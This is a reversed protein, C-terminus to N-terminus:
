SGRSGCRGGRSRSRTAPPNVILSRSRAFDGEASVVSALNGLSSAVRVWDEVQKGLEVAEEYLKIARPANNEQRAINALNNICAAIGSRDDIERYLALADDDDARVLRM